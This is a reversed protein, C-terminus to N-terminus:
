EKMFICDVGKNIIYVFFKEFIISLVIIVITWSFLNATDFYIKSNYLNEGISYKPLGIVEAAIGSKFSMGIALKFASKFYPLVESSYIYKIRSYISINFVKAMELLEKNTNTLGMLINEYFIPFVMLFSIVISLYKSSVWILILIVISAVPTSKITFILPSLFSKFEKNKYSIISCIISSILAIFFGIFIRSLSLFISYYFDQDQFLIFLRKLVIFPSVLLIEQNLIISTLHWLLIWFILYLIKKGNENMISIM